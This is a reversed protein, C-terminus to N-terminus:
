MDSLFEEIFAPDFQVLPESFILEVYADDM